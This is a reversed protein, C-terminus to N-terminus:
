LLKSNIEIPTCDHSLFNFFILMYVHRSSQTSDSSKSCSQTPIESPRWSCLQRTVKIILHMYLVWRMLANFYTNIFSSYKCIITCPSDICRSCRQNIIEIWFLWENNICACNCNCTNANIFQNFVPTFKSSRFNLLMDNCGSINIVLSNGTFFRQDFVSLFCMTEHNANIKARFPSTTLCHSRNKRFSKVHRM